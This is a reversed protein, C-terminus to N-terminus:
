VRTSSSTRESRPPSAGSGDLREELLHQQADDGELIARALLGLLEVM